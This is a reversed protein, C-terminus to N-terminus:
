PQTFSEQAFPTMLPFTKLLGTKCWHWGFAHPICTYHYKLPQLTVLYRANKLEVNDMSICFMVAPLPHHVLATWKMIDLSFPPLLPSFLPLSSFLCTLSFYPSPCSKTRVPVSLLAKEKWSPGVEQTEMMKWLRWIIFEHVRRDILDSGTMNGFGLSQVCIRQLGLSWCLFRQAANWICAM